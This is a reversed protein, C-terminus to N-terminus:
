QPLPGGLSPESPFPLPTTPYTKTYYPKTNYHSSTNHKNYITYILNHYSMPNSSSNTEDPQWPYLLQSIKGEMSCIFIDLVHSLGKDENYYIHHSTAIFHQATKFIDHFLYNGKWLEPPRSGGPRVGRRWGEKVNWLQSREKIAVGIYQIKDSPIYGLVLFILGKRFFKGMSVNDRGDTTWVCM